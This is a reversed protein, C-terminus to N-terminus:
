SLLGPDFIKLAQKFNEFEGDLQGCLEEVRSQKGDKAALEIDYAAKRLREAGISASAGKLTHAEVNAPELARDAAAKKISKIRQPAVTLYAKIIKKLVEANGGMIELGKALDFAQTKEPSDSPSAFNKKKGDDPQGTCLWKCLTKKIKEPNAPKAIYDDMGAKVCREMDSKMSHATMALIPTRKGNKEQERIKETTVYGDMVPMQCDMLIADFEQSNLKKLAEFGNEAIETLCGLKKLNELAVRRNILNDEVLLIRKGALTATCGGDPGQNKM